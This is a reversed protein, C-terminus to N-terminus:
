SVHNMVSPRSFNEVTRLARSFRARSVSEQRNLCLTMM